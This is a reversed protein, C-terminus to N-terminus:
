GRRNLKMNKVSANKSKGSSGKDKLRQRQRWDKANRNPKGNL